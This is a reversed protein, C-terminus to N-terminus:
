SDVLLMSARKEELNFMSFAKTWTPLIYHVHPHMSTDRGVLCAICNVHYITYTMDINLLSHCLMTFLRHCSTRTECVNTYIIQRLSISKEFLAKLCRKLPCIGIPIMHPSVLLNQTSDM